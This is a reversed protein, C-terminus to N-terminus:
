GRGDGSVWGRLLLGSGHGLVAYCDGRRKVAGLMAPADTGVTAGDGGL